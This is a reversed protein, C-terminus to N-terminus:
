DDKEDDSNNDSSQKKNEQAVREQIREQVKRDAQAAKKVAENSREIAKGAAENAREDIKQQREAAQKNQERATEAQKKAQEERAKVKIELKEKKAEVEIKVKNTSGNFAAMINQLAVKQEETLDGKVKVMNNNMKAIFKRQESLREAVDEIDTENELSKIDDETKNMQLEYRTKAKAAAELKKEQIMLQVECLRERAHALGKQAKASKGLTLASDVNEIARKLGWMFGNDPTITPTNNACLDVIGTQTTTTTTSDDDANASDDETEVTTNEDVVTSNDEVEVTANEDVVTSNDEIEVTINEDVVVTQNDIMTTNDELVVTTDNLVTTENDITTNATTNDEAFATTAIALLVFLFLMAKTIKNKNM